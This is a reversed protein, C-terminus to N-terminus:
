APRHRATLMDRIHQRLERPLFPKQIVLIPVSLGEIKLMDKTYGSM